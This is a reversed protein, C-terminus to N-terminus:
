ATAEAVDEWAQLVELERGLDELCVDKEVLLNRRLDVVYYWGLDQAIRESRATRLLQDDPRLKRNIRQILAKPTVPVKHKQM